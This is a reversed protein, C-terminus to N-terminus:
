PGRFFKSKTKGLDQKKYQNSKLVILMIRKLLVKFNYLLKTM